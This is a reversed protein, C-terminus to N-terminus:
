EDLRVVAVVEGRHRAILAPRGELAFTELAVQAKPGFFSMVREAVAEVGRVPPLPALGIVTVHGAIEPDLLSVLERVDGGECVAIFRKALESTEQPSSTM